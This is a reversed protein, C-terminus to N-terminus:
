IIIFQLLYNKNGFDFYTGRVNSVSVNVHGWSSKTSTVFGVHKPFCSVLKTHMYLTNKYTRHFKSHKVNTKEVNVPM